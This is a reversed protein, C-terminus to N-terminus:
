YCFPCSWNCNLYSVKITILKM